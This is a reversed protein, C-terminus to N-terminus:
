YKIRPDISGYILDVILNSFMYFLAFIITAGMIAPFDVRKISQTAYYGLGPYAFVTEILVSGGLMGGFRMGSITVIPILANKLAHRLIVIREALGKSRATRIYDKGMVELMSSRTQRAITALGRYSLTVIPLIMHKLVDIFLGRDGTLFADFLVLGTIRQPLYYKLSVVGAVPLWELRYYFLIILMLALWFSPM